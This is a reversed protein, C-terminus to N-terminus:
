KRRLDLLLRSCSGVHTLLLSSPLEDLCVLASASRLDNKGISLQILLLSGSRETEKQGSVDVAVPSVHSLMAEEEEQQQHGDERGLSSATCLTAADLPRLDLVSHVRSGSGELHEDLVASRFGNGVTLQLFRVETRVLLSQYTLRKERDLSVRQELVLSDHGDTVSFHETIAGLFVKSPYFTDALRSLSKILLYAGM